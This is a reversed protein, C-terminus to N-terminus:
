SMHKVDYISVIPNDDPETWKTRDPKLVRNILAETVTKDWADVIIKNKNVLFVVEARRKILSRESGWEFDPIKGDFQKQSYGRWVVQDDDIHVFSGLLEQMLEHEESERLADIEIQWHEQFKEIFEKPSGKFRRITPFPRHTVWHGGEGDDLGEQVLKEGAKLPLFKLAEPGVQWPTLEPLNNPDRRCSGKLIWEWVPMSDKDKIWRAEMLTTDGTYPDKDFKFRIVGVAKCVRNEKVRVKKAKTKSMTGADVARKEAENAIKMSAKDSFPLRLGNKANITTSDFLLEWENSADLEILRAQTSHLSNGSKSSHEKFKGLTVQRIVPARDSDVILQPWVLHFSCKLMDKAKNYGSASYVYCELSEIQPFIIHIASARYRMFEGPDGIVTGDSGKRPFQMLLEDPPAPPRVLGARIGEEDVKGCYNTACQCDLDEIFPFRQTQRESIYHHIGREFLWGINKFLKQQVDPADPFYWKGTTTFTDQAGMLSCHTMNNGNTEYLYFFARIDEFKKMDEGDLKRAMEDRPRRHPFLHTITAPPRFDHQLAGLVQARFDWHELMQDALEKALAHLRGYDLACDRQFAWWRKVEWREKQLIAAEDPKLEMEKQMELFMQDSVHLM